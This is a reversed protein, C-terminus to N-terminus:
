MPIVGPLFGLEQDSMGPRSSVTSTCKSRSGSIRRRDGTAIYRLSRVELLTAKITPGRPEKSATITGDPSHVIPCGIWDFEFCAEVSRGPSCSQPTRYNTSRRQIDARDPVALRQFEITLGSSCHALVTPRTRTAMVGWLGSRIGTPVVVPPLRRQRRSRGM